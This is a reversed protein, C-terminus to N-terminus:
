RVQILVTDGDGGYRGAHWGPYGVGVNESVRDVGGSIGKVMRM